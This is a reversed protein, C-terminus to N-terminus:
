KAAPCGANVWALLDDRRWAIMAGGIKIPKPFKGAAALRRISTRSINLLGPLDRERVLLPSDGAPKEAATKSPKKAPADMTPMAIGGFATQWAYGAIAM